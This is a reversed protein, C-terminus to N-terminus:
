QTKGKERERERVKNGGFGPRSNTAKPAGGLCSSVYEQLRRLTKTDLSDIDIELEGDDDQGINTSECIIDVVRQTDDAPLQEISMRLNRKEDYTLPADDEAPASQRVKNMRELVQIRRLLEATTEESVLAASKPTAPAKRKRGAGPGGRGGRGRGGRGGGGRGRGGGGTSGSRRMKAQSGRRQGKNDYSYEDDLMVSDDADFGMELLEDFGDSGDSEWEGDQWSPQSPLSGRQRKKGKNTASATSRQPSLGGLSQSRAGGLSGGRRNALTPRSYPSLPEETAQNPAFFSRQLVAWKTEFTSSITKAAQHVPHNFDPNYTMANSFVLRVDTAFEDPTEYEGYMLKNHILSFDRPEKIVNFYNPAEHRVPDVPEKFYFAEKFRNLTSLLEQCKSLNKDLRVPERDQRKIPARVV